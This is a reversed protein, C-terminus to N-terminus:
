GTVVRQKPPRGGLRGNARSANARTERRSWETPGLVGELLRAISFDANLRPFSLTSGAGDILVDRLEDDSADGLGFARVSEFSFEVGTDLVIVVRKRPAIYRASVAYPSHRVAGKGTRAFAIEDVEVFEAM